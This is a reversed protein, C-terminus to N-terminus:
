FQREDLGVANDFEDRLECLSPVDPGRSSEAHSDEKTKKSPNIM